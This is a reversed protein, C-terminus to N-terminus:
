NQCSILHPLEVYLVGINVTYREVGFFNHGFLSICAVTEEEVVVKRKIKVTVALRINMRNGSRKDYSNGSVQSFALNFTIRCINLQM